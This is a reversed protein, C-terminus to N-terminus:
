VAHKGKESVQSHRFFPFCTELRVLLGLVHQVARAGTFGAAKVPQDCESGHEPSVHDGYLRRRGCRLLLDPKVKLSSSDTYAPGASSGILNLSQATTGRYIRYSYVMVNDTSATWTLSIQTGSKPSVVLNTPVSPAQTDALTATTTVSSQASYNLSSDYAAVAYYYTTGATLGTTDVFSTTTSNGIPIMSTLTKGRYLAYGAMYINDTSPGWTLKVQQCGSGAAVLRTPVTPPIMDALSTVAVTASQASYNYSPDFAVVAYYYVTKPAVANDTFSNTTVSAFVSLSSVSSGRFVHYGAVSVSDTSPTWTLLIQQDTVSTGQVGGPISPPTVDPIALTTVRAAASLASLNGAADFAQLQYIYATSPTVSKDNFNVQSSTSVLSGNRYLNYGAVGINDTTPNWLVQVITQGVQGISPPTPVQPATTDPAPLIMAEWAPGLPSFAGLQRANGAASESAAIVQSPTQSGYVGYDLYAFYLGTWFPSVFQFQGAQAMNVLAQMYAQDLPEWFSFMGLADVAQNNLAGANGQLQSLSLKKCWTESMTIPLGAAHAMTAASLANEPFSNSVSYLHLDVYSVPTSIVNQIYTSFSKIWTGAGAGVPM